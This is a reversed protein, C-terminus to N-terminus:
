QLGLISGRRASHLPSHMTWNTSRWRRLRSPRGSSAATEIYFKLREQLERGSPCNGYVGGPDVSAAGSGECLKALRQRLEETATGNDEATQATATEVLCKRFRESASTIPEISPAPPPDPSNSICAVMLTLAVLLDYRNM